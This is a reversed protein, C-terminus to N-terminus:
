AKGLTQEKAVLEATVKIIIDKAALDKYWEAMRLTWFTKDDDANTGYWCGALGGYVAAVTDADNGLNAALMAGAEFTDTSFICFLAAVLTHLVYGSSPLVDEEPLQDEKMGLVVKMIPHGADLDKGPYALAKRLEANQYPFQSFYQLVDRKTLAEERAAACMIRVVAGTWVECAEQCVENPHTTLSSRRALARAEKEDRWYLVGVPIVRMLSGNGSNGEGGLCARLITNGIDFCKGTASLEGDEWWRTYAALQDEEDFGAESAISRALCLTMSTDDTWVGKPLHLNPNPIMRSIPPFTFRRHCEAPSGLADSLATCLLACRIKTSPPAPTVIQSLSM